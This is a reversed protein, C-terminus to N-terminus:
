QALAQVEGNGGLHFRANGQGLEAGQATWEGVWDYAPEIVIEGSHNSLFGYHGGESVLAFPESFDCEISDFRPALHVEGSENMLGMKGNQELLYLGNDLTENAIYDYEAPLCIEAQLNMVGVKRRDWFRFLNDAFLNEDFTDMMPPHIQLTGKFVAYQGQQWVLLVRNHLHIELERQRRDLELQRKEQDEAYEVSLAEIKNLLRDIQAQKDQSWAHSWVRELKWGGHSLVLHRLRDRDRATQAMAYMPGDSEIGLVYRQPERPDVVALEMKYKSSGLQNHVQFGKDLLAETLEQCIQTSEHEPSDSQEGMDLHGTEAFRLYDRLFRVGASSSNRIKIEHHHFSCFLEVKQRARTFAVNLRRHGVQQNIPGFRQYFKGEKNKGYGVSILIIDREDGQVNELNKVFLAEGERDEDFFAELSPDEIHQEQIVERICEQQGLGMAIIGVSLPLEEAQHYRVLQVLRAVLAEAEIRNKRKHFVGESVYHFQVPNELPRDARPFTILDGSYIRYNSPNILEEFRSRYHWMLRRRRLITSALDLVSEYDAGLDDEDSLEGPDMFARAVSTPPMQLPDGAVILQKGRFISCLGDEPYIQSAEDFIVTDFIETSQGAELAIFQSVSLPSMMWCPHVQLILERLHKLLWRIRKRPRKQAALKRLSSVQEQPIRNRQAQYHNRHAQWVRQRNLPFQAIDLARFDEIDQEHDAPSFGLLAPFNQEAADLYVHYFRELFAQELRDAPLQEAIVARLFDKLGAQICAQQIEAFPLWAALEPLAERQTEVERLLDDLPQELNLDWDSALTDGHTKLEQWLAEIEQFCTRGAEPQRILAKIEANLAQLAHLKQLAQLAQRIESWATDWGDFREAAPHKAELWEQREQSLSQLAELDKRVRVLDSQAKGERYFSEALQKKFQYWAPMLLKMVGAKEFRALGDHILELDRESLEQTYEMIEDWRAQLKECRSQDDELQVQLHALDQELWAHPFDPLAQLQSWWPKLAQWQAASQWAERGTLDSWRQSLAQLARIKDSLQQWASDFAERASQSFAKHRKLKRWPHELANLYVEEHRALRQILACLDQVGADDRQLVQPLSFSLSQDAQWQACHAYVDHLSLSLAGPRTNLTDAYQNLQNKIRQLRGFLGTDLALDNGEELLEWTSALGQIFAKNSQRHDHLDLCLNDLGAQAMRHHVVDLAAKKQSVFLVKKGQAVLEALINVITQSKGTGPPGDLVFSIGDKAAQIAELQSGDADIIQFSEHAQLDRDISRAERFDPQQFPQHDCFRAILPHQEMQEGWEEMENYLILNAFHFVALVPRHSQIEWDPHEQILDHLHQLQANLEELSPTEEEYKEPISDLKLGFSQELYLRLTPNFVVTEDEDFLLSYQPEFTGQKELDMPLLFLPSYTYEQKDQARWKLFGHALYLVNLGMEQEATRDRNRLNYLVRYRQKLNWEGEHAFLKDLHKQWPDIPEDDSAEETEAPPEKKSETTSEASEVSLAEVPASQGSPEPAEDKDPRVPMDVHSLIKENLKIAKDKLLSTLQKETLQPLALFNTKPKGERTTFRFHLLPNRASVDILRNKWTDILGM